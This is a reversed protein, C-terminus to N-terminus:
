ISTNYDRGSGYPTNQQIQTQFKGSSVYVVEVKGATSSQKFDAILEDIAFKLESAAVIRVHRAQGAMIDHNVAQAPNHQDM